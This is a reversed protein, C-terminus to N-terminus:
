EWQSEYGYGWTSIEDDEVMLLFDAAVFGDMTPDTFQPVSQFVVVDIDVQPVIVLAFDLTITTDTATVVQHDESVDASVDWIRVPTLGPVSGFMRGPKLALQALFDANLTLVTHTGDIAHITAGCSIRKTQRMVQLRLEVYGLKWQPLVGVVRCPRSSLSAGELDPVNSVDFTIMDGLDLDGLSLHARCEVYMAGRGSEAIQWRRLQDEVESVSSRPMQLDTDMRGYLGFVTSKSQLKLTGELTPYREEVELDNVEVRETYAKRQVSYGCELIVHPFVNEEDYLVEVDGAVNSDDITAVADATPTLTKVTLQGAVNTQAFSETHLCFDFLLDGVTCPDALYYGWNVGRGIAQIATTDLDAALIAAGLRWSFGDAQDDIPRLGLLVDNSGNTGDGTVSALLKLLVVDASDNLFACPYAQGTPPFNGYQVTNALAAYWPSTTPTFAAGFSGIFVGQLVVDLPFDDGGAFRVFCHDGLDSVDSATVSPNPTSIVFDDRAFRDGFLAALSDRTDDIMYDVQPTRIEWTSMRVDTPRVGVYLGRRAYGDIRDVGSLEWTKEKRKFSPAKDIEWTGLVQQLAATSTSGDASLFYGYLTLIRGVWSPPRLYVAQGNVSGGRLIAARSGYAARTSGTFDGAADVGLTITEGGVWVDVGNGLPPADNKVSITTTAASHVSDIFTTRPRRVSFLDALTGTIDDVLKLRVAGGKARRGQVDLERRDLEFDAVCGVRRRTSTILATPVSASAAHFVENVGSVTFYFRLNRHGDSALRDAFTTM